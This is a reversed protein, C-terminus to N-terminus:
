NEVFQGVTHRGDATIVDRLQIKRTVTTDVLVTDRVAMSALVARYVKDVEPAGPAKLFGRVYGGAYVRFTPMHTTVKILAEATYNPIGLRCHGLYVNAKRSDPVRDPDFLYWREYLFQWANSRPLFKGTLYNKRGIYLETPRVQHSQTVHEPYLDILDEKPLVTQYIAKAQVLEIPGSRPLTVTRLPTARNAFVGVNPDSSLFGTGTFYLRRDM